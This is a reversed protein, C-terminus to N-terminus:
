TETQGKILMGKLEEVRKRFQRNMDLRNQTREIVSSVSSHKKLNFEIGIKLLPVGCLNRNLYIAVDRPENETGRKLLLLQEPDIQYFRCVGDKIATTSPSLMKSAPVEVNSKEMFFTGKIWDLFAKSGIIAPVNKRAFFHHIEESDSQNVFQKYHRIRQHNESILMSLIFDKYLWDWKKANSIYGRHSSWPYQSLKEALGARVPNKHIYRVLQLLYSDADILISKYRGRFLTGDCGHRRNYRQTYVGNIHRMCRALNANPTQVLIHYHTPMLCYASVRISFMDTTDQLLDLFRRYDDTDLYLIQGRRARNIVHYWADPYEIRLPRSM